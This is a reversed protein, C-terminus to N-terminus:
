YIYGERELFEKEAAPQRAAKTRRKPAPHARAARKRDLDLADVDAYRRIDPQSSIAEPPRLPPLAVAPLELAARTERSLEREDIKPKPPEAEKTPVAEAEDLMATQAPAGGVGLEDWPVFQATAAILAAIWGALWMGRRAPRPAMIAVPPTPVANRWARLRQDCEAKAAPDRLTAYAHNISAAREQANPDDVWLDPHYKKILARYAAEIVVAEADPSLNLIEYPTRRTTMVAASSAGSDSAIGTGPSSADCQCLFFANLTRFQFM